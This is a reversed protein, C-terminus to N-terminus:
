ISVHMSVLDRVAETGPDGGTALSSWSESSSDDTKPGSKELCQAALIQLMFVVHCSPNIRAAEVM